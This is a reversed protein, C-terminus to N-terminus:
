RDNSALTPVPLGDGKGWVTRRFSVEAPLGALAGWSKDLDPADLIELTVRGSKTDSEQWAFRIADDETFAATRDINIVRGRLKRDLAPIYINAIKGLQIEPLEDQTLFADVIPKEVKELVAVVESRAVTNGASKTINIVRAAYPANLTFSNVEGVSALKRKALEVQAKAAQLENRLEQLDIEKRVNSYYSGERISGTLAKLSNLEALSSDLERRGNQYRIRANEYDSRTILGADALQERREMDRRLARLNDRAARVKAEAAAVKDGNISAYVKIARVASDYEAQKKRANLRAEALETEAALLDAKEDISSIVMLPESAALFQGPQADIRQIVGDIASTMKEVPRSVVASDINLRFVLAYLSTLMFYTLFLGLVGYIASRILTKRPLEEPEKKAPLKNQEKPAAPVATTVKEEPKATRATTVTASKGGTSSTGRRANGTLRDRFNELLGRQRTTLDTFEFGARQTDSWIARATASFGLDFGEYPLSLNVKYLKGQFDGALGVPLSFGEISWDSTQFEREGIRVTLPYPLRHHRRRSSPEQRPTPKKTM